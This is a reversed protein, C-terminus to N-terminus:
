EGGRSREGATSPSLYHQSQLLEERSSCGTNSREIGKFTRVLAEIGPCQIWDDNTILIRKM